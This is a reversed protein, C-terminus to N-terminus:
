ERGPSGRAGAPVAERRRAASGRPPRRRPWGAGRGRPRSSRTVSDASAAFPKQCVADYPVLAVRAREELGPRKTQPGTPDRRWQFVAQRANLPRELVPFSPQIAQNSASLDTTSDEDTTKSRWPSQSLRALLGGPPRRRAVPFSKGSQVKFRQMATMFELEDDTYQKEFTTPDIRRRREKKARREPRLRPPSPYRFRPRPRRQSTGAIRREHGDRREYFLTDAPFADFDFEPATPSRRDKDAM